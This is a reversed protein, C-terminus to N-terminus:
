DKKKPDAGTKHAKKGPYVRRVKRWPYLEGEIEFSESKFDLRMPTGAFAARLAQRPALRTLATTVSKLTGGELVVIKVEGSEIHRMYIRPQVGYDGGDVILRVEAITTISM